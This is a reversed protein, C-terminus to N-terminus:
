LRDMERDLGRHYFCLHVSGELLRYAQKTPGLPLPLTPGPHRGVCVSNLKANCCQCMPGALTALLHAAGRDSNEVRGNAAPLM